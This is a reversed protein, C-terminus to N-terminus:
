AIDFLINGALTKIKDNNNLNTNNVSSVEKAKKKLWNDYKNKYDM